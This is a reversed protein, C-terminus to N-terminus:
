PVSILFNFFPTKFFSFLFFRTLSWVQHGDSRGGGVGVSGDINQEADIFGIGVDQRGPQILLRDCSEDPLAVFAIFATINQGSKQHRGAVLQEWDKKQGLNM